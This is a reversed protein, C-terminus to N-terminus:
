SKDEGKGGKISTLVVNRKSTVTRIALEEKSKKYRRNILYLGLAFGFCLGSFFALLALWFFVTATLNIM